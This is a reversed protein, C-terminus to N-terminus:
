INSFAYYVPLTFSKFFWLIVFLNLLLLLTNLNVEKFEQDSYEAYDKKYISGMLNQFWQTKLHMKYQEEDNKPLWPIYFSCLLTIFGIISTLGLYYFPYFLFPDDFTNRNTELFNYFRDPDSIKIGYIIPFLVELLIWGVFFVLLLNQFRLRITGNRYDSEYLSKNVLQDISLDKQLNKSTSAKAFPAAGLLVLVLFAPFGFLWFELWSPKGSLGIPYEPPFSAAMLSTVYLFLLMFIPVGIIAFRGRYFLGGFFRKIKNKEKWPELIMDTIKIIVDILM